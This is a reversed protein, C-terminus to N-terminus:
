FISLISDEPYIEIWHIVYNTERINIWQICSDFM